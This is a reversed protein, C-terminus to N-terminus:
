QVAKVRAGDTLPKTDTSSLAVLSHEPLGATIEVQTLNQLSVEVDRRKLEGDLVQYVYPKSDDMHV